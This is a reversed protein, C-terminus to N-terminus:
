PRGLGAWSPTLLPLVRVMDGEEMAELEPVYRWSPGRKEHESRMAFRRAHSSVSFMVNTPIHKSCPCRKEIESLTWTERGLGLAEEVGVVRGLLGCPGRGGGCGEGRLTGAGGLEVELHGVAGARLGGVRVM